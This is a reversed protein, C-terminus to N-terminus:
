SAPSGGRMIHPSPHRAISATARGVDISGELVLCAPAHLEGVDFVNEAPAFERAPGSAFRKAKEVQDADLMPFMQHVRTDILSM